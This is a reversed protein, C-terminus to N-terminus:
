SAAEIERVIARAAVVPDPAERIPRGVVLLDAGARMADTPTAVRKQDGSDSGAPRVGPTVILGEPALARVRAAEQPSCVFGDIGAELALRTLREVVAAPDSAWGIAGLAAADLSTLATSVM